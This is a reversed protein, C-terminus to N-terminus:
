VTCPWTSRGKTSIRLVHKVKLKATLVFNRVKILPMLDHWTKIVGLGCKKVYEIYPALGLDRGRQVNLSGLDLGFRATPQQIILNYKVKKYVKYM